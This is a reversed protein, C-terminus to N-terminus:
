KIINIISKIMGRSNNKKFRHKQSCQCYHHILMDGFFNSSYALLCVLLKIKLFICARQLIFCEGNLIIPTRFIKNTSNTEMSGDFPCKSWIRRSSEGSRQVFSVIAIVPDAMTPFEDCTDADFSFFTSSSFKHRVSNSIKECLGSHM